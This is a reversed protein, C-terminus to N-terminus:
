GSVAHRRQRCVCCGERNSTAGTFAGKLHGFIESEMLDRPIAACNLAVFPKHNRASSKHIAQACVEKGTGSEGTIFVNASSRGVAEIMRYVAIM